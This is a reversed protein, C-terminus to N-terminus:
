MLHVIEIDSYFKRLYEALLRRHCYHPAHESCLLCVTKKAILDQHSQEVKRMKLLEVYKEEYDGWAMEKNKYAKLIEETPALLPDHIYGIGLIELIFALDDKKAYGSLRTTVPVLGRFFFKQRALYGRPFGYRDLNTRSRSGRGKAKIFLVEKTKFYLH